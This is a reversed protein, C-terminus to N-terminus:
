LGSRVSDLVPFCGRVHDIAHNPAHDLVLAHGLDLDNAPDPALVMDRVPDLVLGSPGRM